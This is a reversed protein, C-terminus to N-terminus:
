QKDSDLFQIEKVKVLPLEVSKAVLDTEMGLKLLRRAIEEKANEKGQEKGKEIGAKLRLEAEREAAIEDNIFKLRSEYALYEKQTMSLEEWSQFADRLSEDKMAIEELEQYIDNYVKDNKHDVMGLLLLWRALVDDWPNLKGVRWAQMLKPMEVFHFEMVDTLKFKEVDEHLHYRTHFPKTKDFLNFNMINIAIVPQLESYSKGRKLPSRYLGAWYYISRKVMNYKNTFQIEVNITENELTTVALDLRAQKDGKYEAADEINMYLIDKIPKRGTKALFANLFVVTIEKNKESGFLQKFAYDIKLDM